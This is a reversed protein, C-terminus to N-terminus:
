DASRRASPLLPRFSLLVTTLMLPLTAANMSQPLLPWAVLMVLALVGDAVMLCKAAKRCVPLWALVAIFIWIPNLWVANLNPSTGEHESCFTLFWVLAGSLGQLAYWLTYIVCSRKDWVSGRRYCQKLVFTLVIAFVLWAVFLPTLFWPTPAGRQNGDGQGPELVRAPMNSFYRADLEMPVFSAQEPTVPSDLMSGLVLDIGLQYWPYGENYQRLLDRFTPVQAEQKPRLRGNTIRDLHDLPKTACNATFYKYRYTDAGPQVDAKLAEFMRRAEPQTLPLAREVVKSGRERYPMLFLGTPQAGINYDTEGKVFRYVFGPSSFDFLGYNFVVDIPHGDVRGSVRVAEHGYLEFIESGPYCTVFGVTLSDSALAPAAGSRQAVAPLIAALMSAIFTLLSKM